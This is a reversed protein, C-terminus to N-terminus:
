QVDQPNKDPHHILALSRYAKKIDDRSAERGVGLVKYYDVFHEM